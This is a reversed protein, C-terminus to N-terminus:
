NASISTALETQPTFTNNTLDAIWEASQRIGGVEEYNFAFIVKSNTGKIRRVTWGQYSVLNNVRRSKEIERTLRADITLSPDNSKMQRLKSLASLVTKPEAQESFVM